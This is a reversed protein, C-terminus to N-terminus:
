KELERAFTKRYRTIGRELAVTLQSISYETELAAAPSFSGGWQITRILSQVTESLKAVKSNIFEERVLVSVVYQIPDSEILGPPHAHTRGLDQVWTQCKAELAAYSRLCYLALAEAQKGLEWPIYLNDLPAPRRPAEEAESAPETPDGTNQTEEQDKSEEQQAENAVEIEAAGLAAKRAQAEIRVGAAEAVTVRSLFDRIPKRFFSM